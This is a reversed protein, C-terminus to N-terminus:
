VNFLRIPIGFFDGGILKLIQNRHSLTDYYIFIEGKGDCCEHITVFVNGPSINEIQDVTDQHEEFIQIVTDIDPLEDCPVGFKYNITSNTNPIMFIILISIVATLFIVPIILILIQKRRKM